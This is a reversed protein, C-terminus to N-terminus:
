TWNKEKFFFPFPILLSFLPLSSSSLAAATAPRAVLIVSTHSEPGTPKLGESMPQSEDMHWRSINECPTLSTCCIHSSSSIQLMQLDETLRVKMCYFGWHPIAESMKLYFVLKKTLEKMSVTLFHCVWIQTGNDTNYKSTNSNKQHSMLATLDLASCSNSCDVVQIHCFLTKHM